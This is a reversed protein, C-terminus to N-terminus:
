KVSIIVCDPSLKDPADPKLSVKPLLPVDFKVPLMLPLSIVKCAVSKSGEQAELFPVAVPVKVAPPVVM